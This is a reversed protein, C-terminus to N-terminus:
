GREMSKVIAGKTKLKELFVRGKAAEVGCRRASGCAIFTFGGAAAAAEARAERSSGITTLLELRRLDARVARNEEKASITSEGHKFM